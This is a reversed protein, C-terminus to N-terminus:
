GVQKSLEVGLGKFFETFEGLALRGKELRFAHEWRGPERVRTWCELSPHLYAGRGARVGNLDRVIVAEGLGEGAGPQAEGESFAREVVFRLLALKEVSQRCGLCRRM